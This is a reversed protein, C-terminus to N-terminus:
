ATRRACRRHQRTALLTLLGVALLAFAGPEPVLSWAVGYEVTEEETFNWVDGTYEVRLGYKGAEAIYIRLHETNSVYGASAAVDTHGSEDYRFLYLDLDAFREEGFTGDVVFNGAGPNRDVFWNLTATFIDGPQAEEHFYYWNAGSSYTQGFDWGTLGVEGLDGNGTGAVDATAAQGDLSLPLYQDFTADLDLAGAGSTYDLAQYTVILGSQPDLAQGNDWGPIKDAANMLVAKIVRADIAQANGDYAELGAGILLAAGGAVMPSAFSTGQLGSLYLNTATTSGGWAPSGPLVAGNGGTQGNYHALVLNQGPAVLDVAPRPTVSYQGNLRSTAVVFDNPGRSSFSAVTDYPPTATDSGLAGVSISNYGAAMGGVSNAGPGANGAATVSVVNGQQIWGDIGLTVLTFGTPDGDGWSSNIVHATQGAVGTVLAPKYVTAISELTNGFRGSYANTTWATAIAGSWLAAGPAIGQGREPDGPLRGALASAVWTAHADYEGLAGTGTIQTSAQGLSEHGNWLHGAELNAV